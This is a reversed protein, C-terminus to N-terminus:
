RLSELEALAAEYDRASAQARGYWVREFCDTLAILHPRRLSDAPILRAYERHTRSPDVQWAGAEGLALVAAGYIIRIADRYEGRAAASQAEQIWDRAPAARVDGAPAPFRRHSVHTLTHALWALLILGLVIVIGWRLFNTLKPHNGARDLLGTVWQWLRDLLQDWFPESEAGERVFRFEHRKLIQDLRARQASYDPASTGSLARADELLREIRNSIEHAARAANSPDRIIRDIAAGLPRTSISFRQEEVVLLWSDPLQKRLAGSQEPHNELRSALASWRELEATYGRLDFPTSSKADPTAEAGSREVPYACASRGYSLFRILHDDGRFRPCM